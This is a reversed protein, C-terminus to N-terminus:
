KDRMQRALMQRVTTCHTPLNLQVLSCRKQRSCSDSMVIALQPTQCSLLMVSRKAQRSYSQLSPAAEQLMQPVAM